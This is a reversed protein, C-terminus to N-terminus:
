IVLIVMFFLVGCKFDDFLGFCFLRRPVALLSIVPPHPAEVRKRDVLEREQNQRSEDSLLIFVFADCWLDNFVFKYVTLSLLEKIKM